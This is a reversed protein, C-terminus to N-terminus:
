ARAELEANFGYFWPALAQRLETAGAESVGLRRRAWSLSIKAYAEYLAVNHERAIGLLAEAARQMAAPDERCGDLIVRYACAHTITAVHGSQQAERVAQESLGRACEVDGLLWTALAPLRDCRIGADSGFM